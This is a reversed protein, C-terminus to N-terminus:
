RPAGALPLTIHAETGGGERPTLAIEGGHDLAIARAIALGLGVGGTERNRSREKRAFPAFM